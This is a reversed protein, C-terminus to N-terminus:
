RRDVRTQSRQVEDDHRARAAEKSREEDRVSIRSPARIVLWILGVLILAPGIIDILWSGPVTM